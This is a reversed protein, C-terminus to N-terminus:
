HAEEMIVINERLPIEQGEDVDILNEHDIRQLNENKLPITEERKHPDM